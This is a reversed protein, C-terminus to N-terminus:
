FFVTQVAYCTSLYKASRSNLKLCALLFLTKEGQKKKKSSGMWQSAAEKARVEDTLDDVRYLAPHIMLM